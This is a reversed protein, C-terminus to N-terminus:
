RADTTTSSRSASPKKSSASRRRRARRSPARSRGSRSRRRRSRWRRGRWSKSRKRSGRRGCVSASPRTRRGFKRRRRSPAPRADTCDRLSNAGLRRACFQASIRRIARARKEKVVARAEREEAMRQKAETARPRAWVERAIARIRADEAAVLEKERKAADRREAFEREFQAVQIRAQQESRAREALQRQLLALGLRMSAAQADDLTADLGFAQRFLQVADPALGEFGAPPSGGPGPPPPTTPSYSGPPPPLPRRGAARDGDPRAAAGRLGGPTTPPTAGAPPAAPTAVDVTALYSMPLLGTEKTDLRKAVCWGEGAHEEGAILEVRVNAAVTLEGRAEVSFPYLVRYHTAM